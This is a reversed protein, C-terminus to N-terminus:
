FGMTPGPTVTPRVPVTATRPEDAVQASAAEFRESLSGAAHGPAFEQNLSDATELDSAIRPDDMLARQEETRQNPPISAVHAAEAVLDVRTVAEEHTAGRREFTEILKQRLDGNERLRDALQAWEAGNMTVSGVTSRKQSWEARERQERQRQEGFQVYQSITDDSEVEEQKRRLQEPGAHMRNDIVMDGAADRDQEARDLIAAKRYDPMGLPLAVSGFVAALAYASADVQRETDKTNDLPLDIPRGDPTIKKAM